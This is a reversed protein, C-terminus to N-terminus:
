ETEEEIAEQIFLSTLLVFVYTQLLGDFIDFYFSFPIPVLLPAALILMEMVVFGGVINGFLRMCLSLPRIFIEMLNIPLLLPLPEAFSKLFKKPGKAHLGAYEILCISMVALAATINLDKTPPKMGWLGALNALGLYLMVTGLYPFYRRGKPGILDEFLGYIGSVVLEVAIQVRSTPIVKLNRTCLISALVLVAMVFWTVVVSEPVAVGGGIPITFAAAVNLRDMLRSTFEEVVM